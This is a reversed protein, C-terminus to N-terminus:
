QVTQVPSNAIKSLQSDTSKDMPEIWGYTKRLYPLYRVQRKTMNAGSYAEILMNSLRAYGDDLDAM